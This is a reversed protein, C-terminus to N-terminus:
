FDITSIMAVTTGPILKVTGINPINIQNISDRNSTMGTYVESIVDVLELQHYETYRKISEQQHKLSTNNSQNESSVRCLGFCKNM